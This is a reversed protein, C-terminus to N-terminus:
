ELLGAARLRRIFPAELDVAWRVCEEPNVRVGGDALGLLGPPVWCLLYSGYCRLDQEPPGDRLYLLWTDWAPVNDVDFFGGSEAEAAGDSLTADPYFVLLRGGALDAAAGPPAEGREALLGARAVALRNVIAEREAHTRPPGFPLEWRLDPPRLADTRLAGQGRCLSIAEAVRRRFLALANDWTLALGCQEVWDEQHSVLLEQRRLVLGARRPDAVPLQGLGLQVRIFEAREAQGHDDLWDAYILRLSDDDPSEIIAQLFADDHTM